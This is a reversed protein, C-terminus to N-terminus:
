PRRKPANRRTSRCREAWRAQSAVTTLSSAGTVREEPSKTRGTNQQTFRRTTTSRGAHAAGVLQSGSGTARDDM